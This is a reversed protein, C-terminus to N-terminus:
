PRIDAPFAPTRRLLRHYRPGDAPPQAVAELLGKGIMEEIRLAILGDSIGPLLRSLALGVVRAEQFPEKQRAILGLLFGDYFDEDVSQLRGNVVTRLPSDERQLEQWRVALGSLFAPPAERQLPLYSAWEGPSVEGWGNKQQVTGGSGEEWAPLQVLLTKGRHPLAALQSAIWCLGCLDDPQGSYWIRLNEGQRARDLFKRFDDAQRELLPDPSDHLLCPGYLRSLAERRQPGFVDQSIPGFSLALSFGFVDEPRGEMPSGSEQQRAWEKRAERLARRRQFWSPRSGDENTLVFGVAGAASKQWGQAARLSGHASESFVVEMM